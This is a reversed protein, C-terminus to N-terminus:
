KNEKLYLITMGLYEGDMILSDNALKYIRKQIIEYYNDNEDKKIQGDNILSLTISDYPKQYIFKYVLVSKSTYFRWTGRDLNYPSFDASYNGKDDFTLIPGNPIEYGDQFRITDLKIGNSDKIEKFNWKGILEQKIIGKEKPHVCAALLIFGYFIILHSNMYFIKIHPM